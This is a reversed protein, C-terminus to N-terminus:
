GGDGNEEYYEVVSDIDMRLITIFFGAVFVLFLTSQDGAILWTVFGLGTLMYVIKLLSEVFEVFTKNSDLLLNIQLTAACHAAIGLVILVILFVISM